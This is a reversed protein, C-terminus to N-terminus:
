YVALLSALVLWLIFARLSAALLCADVGTRARTMLKAHTLAKVCMQSLFAHTIAQLLLVIYLDHNCDHADHQSIM